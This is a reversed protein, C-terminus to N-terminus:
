EIRSPGARRPASRADAPPPQRPVAAPFPIQSVIMGALMLVCGIAQRMTLLEGLVAWGGLAAFVSELSLIIAAAAPAVREQAVVQLTYGTGVSLIGSYLLARAAGSVHGLPEARVAAGMASLAACIAFQSQALRLPGLRPAYRGVAHVHAAWWFAGLLVLGDGPALRLGRQVSLLYLGGAALAAGWWIRRAPCQGLVLTLVPVLVVYLGTIFGAKGATTFVLGAQQSSAGLFLLVGTVVTGRGSSAGPPSIRTRRERRAFPTLVLAGLAFRIANFTFPGVHRMGERQAVFAFGWIMATAILLIEARVGRREHSVFDHDSRHLM